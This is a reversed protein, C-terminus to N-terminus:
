KWGLTTTAPVGYWQRYMDLSDQSNAPLLYYEWAEDPYAGAGPILIEQPENSNHAAFLQVETPQWVAYRERLASLTSIAGTAGIISFCLFVAILTFYQFKKASASSMSLAAAIPMLAILYLSFFYPRGVSLGYYLPPILGAISMVVLVALSTLTALSRTKLFALVGILVTCLLISAFIWSGTAAFSEVGRSFLDFVNSEGTRSNEISSSRKTRGPSLFFLLFGASTCLLPLLQLGGLSRFRGLLWLALLASVAILSVSENIVGIPLLLLSALLARWQFYGAPPVARSLLGLALFLLIFATGYGVVASYFFLMSPGMYSSCAMLVFPVMSTSGYCVASLQWRPKASSNGARRTLGLLAYAATAALATWLLPGIVRWAHPGFAYTAKVIADSIRGNWQTYDFLAQRLVDTPSPQGYLGSGQRLSNIYDDGVMMNRRWLIGWVAINALTILTLAVALRRKLTWNM